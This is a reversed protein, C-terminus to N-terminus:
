TMRFASEIAPAYGAIDGLLFAADVLVSGREPHPASAVPTAGLLSDSLGEALAAQLAADGEARHATNRAVLQVQSGIRRWQALWSRGMQSAYLGRQGVSANVNVTLLFPQNWRDAPIELWVKEDRRWVPLFGETVTAGRVVEAFPKPAGPEARGAAAPAQPTAAPADGPAAPQTRGAAAPTTAQPAPKLGACGPVALVLALVPLMLRFPRVALVTLGRLLM